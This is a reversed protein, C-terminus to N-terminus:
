RSAEVAEPAPYLVLSGLESGDWGDVTSAWALAQMAEDHSLEVRTRGALLAAIAPPADHRASAASWWADASAGPAVRLACYSAPGAAFNTHSAVM